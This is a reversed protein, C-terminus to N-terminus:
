GLRLTVDVVSRGRRVTMSHGSQEFVKLMAINDPLVEARVEELGAERAIAALHRMLAKGIGLRQYQDIVAFALEARNPQTVIYRGAGVIAERGAEEVVAVLAVQSVFDVDLFFGVEQPTFDRKVGFFRRYLSKASTRDVAALFDSRDDPRLARIEVHRGDPLLEGASYKAPDPM